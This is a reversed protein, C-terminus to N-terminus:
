ARAVTEDVADADAAVESELITERVLAAFHVTEIGGRAQKRSMQRVAVVSHVEMWPAQAAPASGGVLVLGEVARHAAVEQGQGVDHVAEAVCM